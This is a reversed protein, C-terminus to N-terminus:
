EAGTFVKKLKKINSIFRNYLMFVLIREYKDNNCENMDKAITYTDQLLGFIEYNGRDSDDKKRFFKIFKSVDGLFGHPLEIFIYSKDSNVIDNLLPTSVVESDKVWEFGIKEALDPEESQKDPKPYMSNFVTIDYGKVRRARSVKDHCESFSINESITIDQINLKDDDANENLIELYKEIGTKCYDLLGNNIYEDFTKTLVGALATYKNIVKWQRLLGGEILLGIAVGFLGGLFGVVIDIDKWSGDSSWGIKTFAICIGGIIWPVVFACVAFVATMKLLLYLKHTKTNYYKM